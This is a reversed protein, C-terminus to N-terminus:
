WWLFWFRTKTQTTVDYVKGDIVKQTTKPKNITEDLVKNVVLSGIISGILREFMITTTRIKDRGRNKKILIGLFNREDLLNWYFIGSFYNYHNKYIVM